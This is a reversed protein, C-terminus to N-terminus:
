LRTNTMEVMSHSNISGKQWNKRFDDKNENEDFYKLVFQKLNNGIFKTIRVGISDPNEWEEVIRQILLKIFKDDSIRGTYQEDINRSIERIRDIFWRPPVAPLNSQIGLRDLEHLLPQYFVNDVLEAIGEEDTYEDVLNDTPKKLIAVLLIGIM